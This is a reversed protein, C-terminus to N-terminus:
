LRVELSDLLPNLVKDGSVIELPVLFVGIQVAVKGSHVLSRGIAGKFSIDASAKSDGASVNKPPGDVEFSDDL